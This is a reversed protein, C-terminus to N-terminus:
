GKAGGSRLSANVVRMMLTFVMGKISLYAIAGSLPVGIIVLVAAATKHQADMLVAFIV